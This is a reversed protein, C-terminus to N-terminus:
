LGLVCHLRAAACDDDDDIVARQSVARDTSERDNQHSDRVSQVSVRDSCQETAVISALCVPAHIM